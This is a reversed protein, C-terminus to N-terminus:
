SGGKCVRGWAAGEGMGPVGAALPPSAAAATHALPPPPRAGAREGAGGAAAGGGRGRWSVEGYTGQGLVEGREYGAEIARCGGFESDVTGREPLEIKWEDPLKVRGGADKRQGGNRQQGSM